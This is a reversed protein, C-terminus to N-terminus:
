ESDSEVIKSRKKPPEQASNDGQGYHVHVHFSGGYINGGFISSFSASSSNTTSSGSNVSISKPISVENYALSQAIPPSNDLIRSINQHQKM